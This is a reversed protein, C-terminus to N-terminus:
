TLVAFFHAVVIIECWLWRATPPVNRDRVNKHLEVSEEPVLRAIGDNGLRAVHEYHLPDDSHVIGVIGVRSSLRPSICSHRWDYNPIYICPAQGELYRVLKKWRARWSTRRGVRLRTVPLDEPVPMPDPSSDDHSTMLIHAGLRRARLSRVLNASFVDVGSVRGSTLSVITEPRTRVLERRWRPSSHAEMGDAERKYAEYDERYSPFIGVDGVLWATDIELINTNGVNYPPMQPVTGEFIFRGKLTAWGTDTPAATGGGAGESGQSLATRISVIAQADAVKGLEDGRRCGSAALLACVVLAGSFAHISSLSKTTTSKSIM